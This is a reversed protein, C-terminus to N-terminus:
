EAEEISDIQIEGCGFEEYDEEWFRREADEYSEAYIGISTSYDIWFKKM